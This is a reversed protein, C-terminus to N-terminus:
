LDLRGDLLKRRGEIPHAHQHGAAGIGILLLVPLQIAKAFGHEGGELLRLNATEHLAPIGIHPLRAAEGGLFGLTAGHPEILGDCM